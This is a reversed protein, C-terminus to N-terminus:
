RWSDRDPRQDRSTPRRKLLFNLVALAAMFPLAYLLMRPSRAFVLLALAFGILTSPSVDAWAAPRRKTPLAVWLATMVLGVRAFAATWLENRETPDTGFKLIGALALCGLAVLGVRLRSLKITTPASYPHNM